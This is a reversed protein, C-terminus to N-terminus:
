DRFNVCVLKRPFITTRMISAHMLAVHMSQIQQCGNHVVVPSGAFIQATQVPKGVPVNSTDGGVKVKSVLLECSTISELYFDRLDTRNCDNGVKSKHLDAALTNHSAHLRHSASRSLICSQSAKRPGDGERTHVFDRGIGWIWIVRYINRECLLVYQFVRGAAGERPGYGVFDCHSLAVFYFMHIVILEELQVQVFSLPKEISLCCRNLYNIVNQEPLTGVTGWLFIVVLTNQGGPKGHVAGLPCSTLHSTSLPYWIVISYHKSTSAM